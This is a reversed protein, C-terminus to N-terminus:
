DWTLDHPIQPTCLPVAAPNEGLVKTEGPVHWELLQEASM